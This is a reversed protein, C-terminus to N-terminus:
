EGRGKHNGMKEISSMIGSRYGLGSGPRMGQASGSRSRDHTPGAPMGFGGRGIRSEAAAHSSISSPARLGSARSISGRLNEVNSAATQPQPLPQQNVPASNMEALMDDFAAVLPIMEDVATVLKGKEVREEDLLKRLESNDHKVSHVVQALGELEAELEKTKADSAAQKELDETIELPSKHDVKTMTTDRKLEEVEKTLDEVQYELDRVKKDWRREYSKKLAAVKSEHKDKYLTHLERSVREVALEVTKGGCVCDGSKPENSEPSPTVRGTKMAALKSEAEQAMVEAAERRRESEEIRGELEEREREGHVIEEKVNRLVAEMEHCRKEWEEKEAALQDKLNREERVQEMSEGVRKEADGVATKLSQVEAEKGSLSAKLSSIESLFGSKLSELERPTVSPMSRPTPAPPIDFDLLNSMYNRNKSPTTSGWAMDPMTAGKSPPHRAQRTPSQYTHSSFNNFQETFDLLNVTGEDDKGQGYRNGRPTPSPSRNAPRRATAPTQIQTRRPTPGSYKAPSHGVKAFMTMDPAASFNSFTSVMTDDMNTTEDHSPGATMSAQTDDMNTTEDHSPGAVMSALTDDKVHEENESDGDELIEIAKTLGENDRLIHEISLAGEMTGPRQEPSLSVSPKVPFRMPSSLKRPSGSPDSTKRPSQTKPGPSTRSTLLKLPIKHEREIPSKSTLRSAKSPSVNEREIPDSISAVFPSSPPGESELDTDTSTQTTCATVEFYDNDNRSTESSSQSNLTADATVSLPAPTTM